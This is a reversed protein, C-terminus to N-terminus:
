KSIKRKLAVYGFIAAAAAAMMVIFPMNSLFVGTQSVHKATNNVIAENVGDTDVAHSKTGDKDDITTATDNAAAGVKVATNKYEYNNARSMATESVTYTTGSPVNTFTVRGGRKLIVQVNPNTSSVSVSTENNISGEFSKQTDTATSPFTFKIDLTFTDDLDTIGADDKVDKGITLNGKGTYTNEFAAVKLKNAQKDYEEKDKTKTLFYSNGDKSKIMRAYYVTQDVTTWGFGDSASKNEKNEKIEFTYEGYPADDGLDSVSFYVTDSYSTQDDTKYDTKKSVLNSITKTIEMEKKPSEIDDPNPIQTCIFEYVDGSITTHDAINVTKTIPIGEPEQTTDGTVPNETAPSESTNGTAAMAMIPTVAMAAALVLGTVLTKINRKKM